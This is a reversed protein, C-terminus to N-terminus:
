RVKIVAISWICDNQPNPKLMHIKLTRLQTWLLGLIEWCGPQFKLHKVCCFECKTNYLDISKSLCMSDHIWWETGHLITQVLFEGMSGRMM